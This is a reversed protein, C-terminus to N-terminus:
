PRVGNEATRIIPPPLGDRSSSPNTANKNKGIKLQTERLSAFIWLAATLGCGFILLAGCGVEPMISKRFVDDPPSSHLTKHLPM